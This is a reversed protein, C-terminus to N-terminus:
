RCVELKEGVETARWDAESLRYWRGTPARVWHERVLVERHDEVVRGLENVRLGRFQRELRTWEQKEAVVITAPECAFSACGSVAAALLGVKVARALGPEPTRGILRFAVTTM